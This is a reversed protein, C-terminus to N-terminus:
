SAALDACFRAITTKEEESSFIFEIGARYPFAEETLVHSDVNFEQSWVVRVKISIPTSTTFTLVGEQGKHLLRPVYLGAGFSTVDNIVIRINLQSPQNKDHADHTSKQTDLVLQASVRKIHLSIRNKARENKRIYM